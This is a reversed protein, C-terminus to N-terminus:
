DNPGAENQTVSAHERRHARVQPMMAEHRQDVASVLRELGHEHVIKGFRDVACDASVQAPREGYGLAFRHRITFEVSREARAESCVNREDGNWKQGRVEGHLRRRQQVNAKRDIAIIQQAQSRHLGVM